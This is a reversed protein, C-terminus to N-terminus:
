WGLEKKLTEWPMGEDGKGVKVAQIDERLAAMLEDDALIEMTEIISEYLEWPLIALVPKGHRTVTVTEIERHSELEQAFLEPLRTLQERAEVMSITHM